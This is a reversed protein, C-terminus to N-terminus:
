VPRRCSNRPGRTPCPRQWNIQWGQRGLTDRDVSHAVNHPPTHDAHPSANVGLHPPMFVATCMYVHLYLVLEPCTPGGCLSANNEVVPSVLCEWLSKRHWVNALDAPGARSREPVCQREVALHLALSPTSACSTRSRNIEPPKQPRHLCRGGLSGCLFPTPM